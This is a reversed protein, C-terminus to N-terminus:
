EEEEEGLAAKSDEELGTVIADFLERIMGVVEGREDHPVRLLQLGAMVGVAPIAAKATDSLSSSEVRDKLKQILVDFDM